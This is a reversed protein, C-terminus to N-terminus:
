VEMGLFVWRDSTLDMNGTWMDLTILEFGVWALSKMFGKADTEPIMRDLCIVVQRVGFVQDALEILAMLSRKTLKSKVASRSLAYGQKLDQGIISSGFFAFVSKKDDLGGVFGRFSCGGAYDWIELTADIGQGSKGNGFYNNYVLMSEDPSSQTDTDMGISVNSGMTREDGFFVTKM